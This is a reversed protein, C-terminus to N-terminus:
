SLVADELRKNGDLLVENVPLEASLLPTTEAAHFCSNLISNVMSCWLWEFCGQYRAVTKFSFNSLM